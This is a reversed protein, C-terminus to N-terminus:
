VTPLIHYKEMFDCALDHATQIEYDLRRAEDQPDKNPDYEPTDRFMAYIHAILDQAEILEQM